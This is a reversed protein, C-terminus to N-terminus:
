LRPGRLFDGLADALLPMSVIVIVVAVCVIFDLTLTKMTAPEQAIRKKRFYVDIM